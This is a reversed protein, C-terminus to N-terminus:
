GMVVGTVPQGEVSGEGPPISIFPGLFCCEPQDEDLVPAQPNSACREANLRMAVQYTQWAHDALGGDYHHHRHCHYTFFGHKEMYDIVTEINERKTARLRDIIAQKVDFTM